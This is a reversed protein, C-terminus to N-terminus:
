PVRNAAEIWIHHPTAVLLSAMRNAYPHSADGLLKSIFPHQDFSPSVVFALQLFTTLDRETNFGWARARALVGLGVAEWDGSQRAVLTNPLQAALRQAVKDVFVRDAERRFAAQQEQRIVLM